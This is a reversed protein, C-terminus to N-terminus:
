LPGTSHGNELQLETVELVRLGRELPDHLRLGLPQFVKENEEAAVRRVEKLHAEYPDPLCLLLTFSSLCVLVNRWFLASTLQEADTFVANIKSISAKFEGPTM